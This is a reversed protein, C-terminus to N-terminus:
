SDPPLPEDPVELLGASLAGRAGEIVRPLADSPLRRREGLARIGEAVSPARDVELLLDASLRSTVVPAVLRSDPLEVRINQADQEVFRTDPPIVLRAALFTEPDSELLDQAALLRDIQDSAPEVDVFSRTEIMRTWPKGGTRRLIIFALRLESINLQALHERHDMVAKEFEPGLCPFRNAAYFTVYRDLNKPTSLLVLIDLPADGTLSRIREPPSLDDYKPWDLLLVARGEPAMYAPLERLLRLSLEDGRSGGHLFTIEKVNPPRSVFPPQSVILDFKQGTVASFLDSRMFEVTSVGNLRANMGAIPFVRPNIDVGVAHDTVSALILAATGAGCGLDLVNNLPHKPWAAQILSATTAGAGMVADEGQNLDDTFIFQDNVLNLRLPCYLSDEARILLGADLLSGLLADDEFFYALEGAPVPDGFFFTRLIPGLPPDMRRLHWLRIPGQLHEQLGEWLRTVKAVAGRVVGLSEMKRKFARCQIADLKELGSVDCLPM